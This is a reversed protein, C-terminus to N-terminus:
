PDEALGTELRLLENHLGVLRSHMDNLRRDMNVGDLIDLVRVRGLLTRRAFPSSFFAHRNWRCGQSQAWQLVGMHGGEAADNCTHENWPCPPDQSRAWKLVNLHGNRAAYRCVQENWECGQSRAWQLVDLHGNRAAYITTSSNWPCGRARLWKLVKLNGNMAPYMCTWENWGCGRARLWTLVNLHGGEAAASCVDANLECGQSLMWELIHLHGGTAARRITWEDWPCGKNRLWQLVELHGNEAAHSAATGWQCGLSHLWELMGLYGGEAAADCCRSHWPCEEVRLYKLFELHGGKAAQFCTGENWPCGVVNRLWKMVELNGVKAATTALGSNQLSSEGAQIKIWELVEVQDGRVAGHCTRDTMPCGNRKLWVLDQILGHYAALEGFREKILFSQDVDAFCNDEDDSKADGGFGEEVDKRFSDLSWRLWQTGVTAEQKKFLKVNTRPFAVGTETKNNEQQSVLAERMTKCTMAFALHENAHLHSAIKRWLEPPLHLSPSPKEVKEVFKQQQKKLVRNSRRQRRSDRVEVTVAKRKVGRQARSTSVDKSTSTEGADRGISYRARKDKGNEMESVEFVCVLVVVSSVEQDM